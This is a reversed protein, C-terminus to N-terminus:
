VTSFHALNKSSLGWDQLARATVSVFVMDSNQPSYLAATEDEAHLVLCPRRRM